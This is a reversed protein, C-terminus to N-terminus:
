RLLSSVVLTSGPRSLTWTRPWPKLSKYSESLLVKQKLSLWTVVLLSEALLVWGMLSPARYLLRPPSPRNLVLLLVSLAQAQIRRPLLLRRPAQHKRWAPPVKLEVQVRPSPHKPPPEPRAPVRPSRPGQSRAALKPTRRPLIWNLTKRFGVGSVSNFDVVNSTRASLVHQISEHHVRGQHM